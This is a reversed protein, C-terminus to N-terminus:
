KPEGRVLWHVVGFVIFAVIIFLVAKDSPPLENLPIIAVDKM